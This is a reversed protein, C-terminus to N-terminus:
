VCVVKSRRSNWTHVFRKKKRRQERTKMKYCCCCFCFCLVLEYRHISYCQEMSAHWFPTGNFLTTSTKFIASCCFLVLYFWGNVCSNIARSYWGIAYCSCLYILSSLYTTYLSPAKRWESVFWILFYFSFLSHPLSPLSLSSVCTQSDSIHSFLKVSLCVFLIFLCHAHDIKSRCANWICAGTGCLSLVRKKNCVFAFLRNM